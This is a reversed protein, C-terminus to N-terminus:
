MILLVQLGPLLEKHQTASVRSLFQVHHPVPYGYNMGSQHPHTNGGFSGVCNGSEHLLITPRDVYGEGRGGAM